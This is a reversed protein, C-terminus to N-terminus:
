SLTTTNCALTARWNCSDYVTYIKFNQFRRAHVNREEAVHRQKSPYDIGPTELSGRPKSFKVDYRLLIFNTTIIKIVVACFAVDTYGLV